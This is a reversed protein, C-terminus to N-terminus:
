RCDRTCAYVVRCLDGDLSRDFLFSKRLAMAITVFLQRYPVLPLVEEVMREAWEIARRQGCSPCLVHRDRGDGASLAPLEAIGSPEDLEGAATADVVDRPNQEGIGRGSRCANVGRQAEEGCRRPLSSAGPEKRSSRSGSAV